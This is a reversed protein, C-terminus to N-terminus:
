VQFHSNGQKSIITLQMNESNNLPQVPIGILKSYLLTLGKDVSSTLLTLSFVLDHVLMHPLGTNFDFTIGDRIEIANSGEFHRIVSSGNLAHSM